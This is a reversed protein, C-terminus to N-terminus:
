RKAKATSETLAGHRISVTDREYRSLACKGSIMAAFGREQLVGKKCFGKRAFGRKLSASVHAEECFGLTGQEKPGRKKKLPGGLHFNVSELLSQCGKIHM